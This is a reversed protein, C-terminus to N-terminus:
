DGWSRHKQVNQMMLVVEKESVKIKQKSIVKLKSNVGSKKLDAIITSLTM